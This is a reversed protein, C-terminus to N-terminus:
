EVVIGHGQGTREPRHVIAPARTTLVPCPSYRMVHEAVSGMLLRKLGTRGHTGMVILDCHNEGAVRDIEASPEGEALVHAVAVGPEPPAIRYLQEMQRARYGEPQLQGVAEGVSIHEPGLTDVVHVILLRAGHLRALDVAIGFAYRSCESFDTPHLICQPAFM